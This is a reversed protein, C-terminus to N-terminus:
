QQTLLQSYRSLREKGRLENGKSEGERDEISKDENTYKETYKWEIPILYKNGDTHLAYILADVSACNSGRTPQGENLHDKDSVAEFQIYGPSYKDTIIPLVDVFDSCV